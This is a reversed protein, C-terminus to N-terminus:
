ATQVLTLQSILMLSAIPKVNNGYRMLYINNTMLYLTFVPYLTHHYSTM